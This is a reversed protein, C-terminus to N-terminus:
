GGERLAISYIAMVKRISDLAARSSLTAGSIGDIGRDLQLDQLPHRYLREFWRAPPQYEPPEHFALVETRVLEGTPSLVILLTEPQTRVTHSELAAYGLVQGQRKGVYFTFLRGDLKVRATREVAAAQEETLFAPITEVESGPGFALEFAEDKSYYITGRSTAAALLLLLGLVKIAVPKLKSMLVNCLGHRYRNGPVGPFAFPM